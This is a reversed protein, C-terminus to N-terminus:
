TDAKKRKQPKQSQSLTVQGSFSEQRPKELLLITSIKKAYIITRVRNQSNVRPINMHSVGLLSIQLLILM